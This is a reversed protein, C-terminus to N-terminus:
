KYEDLMVRMFARLTKKDSDNCKAFEAFAKGIFHVALGFATRSDAETIEPKPETTPSAKYLEDVAVGCANAIALMVGHSAANDGRELKYIHSETCNAAKAVDGRTLGAKERWYKISNVFM